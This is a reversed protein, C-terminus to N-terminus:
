KMSNRVEVLYHDFADVRILGLRPFELDLPQVKVNHRLVTGDRFPSTTKDVKVWPQRGPSNNNPGAPQLEHWEDGGALAIRANV